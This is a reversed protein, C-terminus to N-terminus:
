EFKGTTPNWWKESITKKGSKNEVYEGDCVAKCKTCNYFAKYRHTNQANTEFEGFMENGCYRCFMM